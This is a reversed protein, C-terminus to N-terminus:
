GRAVAEAAIMRAEAKLGVRDLASVVYYLHRATMQSWSNGQMGVGALLAVLTKNDVEAARTILESWRTQRGLKLDLRGSAQVITSQDLRGLGALGALLFKSKRREASDDEDIFSDLSGSSVPTSRDPQVVALMAWALDGENAIKGWRLANADLGAALMSAVLPAAMDSYDSDAPFRAAAYATLVQRSYDPRSDDGWLRRMAGYREQPSEGLYALRLLSARMAPDGEVEEDAYIQSYLDVMASASLIGQGAAVDAAEARVSLPLMPGTAAALAYYPGAKDMLADPVSIGLANALTFRWPTIQSVDEWEITVAQGSDAAAGAFRQALLVDIRDAIGRSLARDLERKAENAEGAYASCIARLMQWQPDKRIDGQLRVAPCMGLLDFSGVYADLAVQTLAPSYNTTDIDQVLARAATSEGMRNLLGARLAAFEVPSMGKPADLRSALARRLMIHGWRSVLPRKTGKLAARVLPAPQNAISRAPFGGEAASIVGVRRLARRAAPPIDYKPKLGFLEDVEETTMEEIKELSPFEEPLTVPSATTQDGPLPQVVASSGQEPTSTVTQVPRSAPRPTEPIPDDFGPPLLSEPADQALVLSSCLAIVAGGLLLKRM